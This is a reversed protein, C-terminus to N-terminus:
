NSATQRIASVAEQESTSIKLATLAANTNWMIVYAIKKGGLGADLIIANHKSNPISSFRIPFFMPFTMAMISNAFTRTQRASYQDDIYEQVEWVGDNTAGQFIPKVYYGKHENTLNEPQLAKIHIQGMEYSDATYMEWIGTETVAYLINLAGNAMVCLQKIEQVQTIDVSVWVNRLMDYVCMGRGYLTNVYFMAYNDFAVAAVNNALQVRGALIKAVQASFVSNNGEVRFNQVANFSKIGDNDIFTYDGLAEVFSQDNLIGVEQLQAQFYDPEGFITRTYDLQILRVNRATGYLFTNTVNVARICTIEDSDFAFSVTAAGGAAETIAKHGQNDVNVMFDLPRGTVSQYISKRDPALIFLKENLFFMQTGIPVYERDDATVSLNAWQSYNKTVRAIFTQTTADFQILWPQNIGDQVVIGAPNGSVNFDTNIIIPNNLSNNRQRVFNRSSKPVAITWFRRATADMLFDSIRIWATTGNVRYYARGEVFLLLTNGVAVLAQHNGPIPSDLLTSKRIPQPKGYRSRGNILLVYQRDTISTDDDLQNIGGEFSDQTYEM